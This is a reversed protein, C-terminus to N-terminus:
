NIIIPKNIVTKGNDVQLGYVGKALDSVEITNNEPTCNGKMVEQGLINFLTYRLSGYTTPYKINLISSTPNPYVVFQDSSFSETNLLTNEYVVSFRQQETTTNNFQFNYEVESGTLPIPTYINLLSDFLYPTLGNYNLTNLVLKYNTSIAGQTISLQLVDSLVAFDRHEITLSQSSQLFALNEGGKFMKKSDSNTLGNDGNASFAAVVGDENQWQNNQEKYLVIRVQGVDTPTLLTNQQKNFVGNNVMSGKHTEKITFTSTSSPKVFFAQGSQIMTPIANSYSSGAGTNSWGISTDYTLYGGVTSLEPDWVWISTFNSNSVESLMANPNIPSPYPNGIFSHIDNPLSSYIVDGSILEGSTNLVTASSGTTINSAEITFPGTVFVSFANNISSNFLPETTTDTVPIWATAGSNTPYKLINYSAATHMGVGSPGWLNVGTGPNELGNNQWNGFVSAANNGKLPTTMMRWSRKAGIYREVVTINTGLIADGLYSGFIGDGTADSKFVLTGNNELNGTVNLSKGPAITLTKGSKITLNLSTLDESTTLDGDIIANKSASPIGNSWLSTYSTLDSGADVMNWENRVYIGDILNNQTAAYQRLAVGQIIGIDAATGTIPGITPTVPESTINQGDSFVYLSVTDNDAGDIFTYKVVILYTQTIDLDATVDDVAVTTSNFTLGLKFQTATTGPLVFIRGRFATNTSTFVPNTENNYKVFHFFFDDNATTIAANTKYLFSAYVSGESIYGNLPKNEDSGTNDVLASNGIGSGIYATNTWSLGGNNITIPNTIGASHANWGQTTLLADAAYDFNEALYNSQGFSYTASILIILSYLKKM